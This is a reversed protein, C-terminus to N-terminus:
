ADKVQILKRIGSPLIDLWLMVNKFPEKWLSSQFQRGNESLKVQLKVVHFAYYNILKNLCSMNTWSKLNHLKAYKSFVEFWVLFYGEGGRRTPLPGYLDISSLEGPKSLVHSREQIDVSRNTHTM